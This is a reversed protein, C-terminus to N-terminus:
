AVDNKITIMRKLDEIVFPKKIFKEQGLNYLAIKERETLNVCSCIVIRKPSINFEQILSKILSVGSGDPLNIDVIVLGVESQTSVIDGLMETCEKSSTSAVVEIGSAEFLAAILACAFISDECIVVKMKDSLIIPANNDVCPLDNVSLALPQATAAITFVNEGHESSIFFKWGNHRCIERCIWLGKGTSVESRYPISIESRGNVFNLVNQPIRPGTHSIKFNLVNNDSLTSFDIKINFFDTDAHKTINSLINEILIYIPAIKVSIYIEVTAASEYICKLNYKKASFEIEEYLKQLSTEEITESNAEPDLIYNIVNHLRHFDDTILSTNKVNAQWKLSFENLANRLDHNIQSLFYSKKYDQSKVKVYLKYNIILLFILFFGSFAFIWTTKKYAENGNIIRNIQTSNLSQQPIWKEYLDGLLGTERAHAAFANVADILYAHEFLAVFAMGSSLVVPGEFFNFPATRGSEIFAYRTPWEAGLFADVDGDAVLTVAENFTTVPVFTVGSTNTNRELWRKAFAGPRDIYALRQPLNNVANLLYVDETTGYFRINFEGFSESFVLGENGPFHRAEELIMGLLAPRPNDLLDDRAIQVDALVQQFDYGSHESLASILDVWYGVVLDTPAKFHLPSLEPSGYVPIMTDAESSDPSGFALSAAILWMIFYKKLKTTINM